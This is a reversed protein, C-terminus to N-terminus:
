FGMPINPVMKQKGFRSMQKVMKQMAQFQKLLRNVDQVRTGSGYAIRKRRSGNIIQPKNREEITMSQIIAEISVLTDDDVRLGALNKGMGPLMGAIQDLSGMRKIQQIQTYFDELTFANKRLKEAIKENQRKDSVEQAKEVLTVVDGMGLIRSAMRDPHFPEIHSLKEGTSIFKIPKGTIARISLAAGGKSDGDMKTLVIGTFDLEDLFSQASKVADQGTMGDAVFLIEAPKIADKIGTLEAMMAEDIHLRGATDVILVDYGQKRSHSVAEKVIRVPKEKGFEYVPINVSKGLTKLQEIAAPRVVDAAVLLPNHGQKRLYTGLKGVFTTKGSGQLGVVMIISPANSGLQLSVNAKGLLQVMEDYVIKVVQQGPSVSRVVAQGLAKKQIEAIFNKVVRYNVDAELLIRRIERMSESINKETLKGLGRIRRVTADLKEILEEFM